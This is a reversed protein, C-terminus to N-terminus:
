KQYITVLTRREKGKRRWVTVEVVQRDNLFVIGEMADLLSGLLNDLDNRCSTVVEMGVDGEIPPAGWQRKIEWRAGEEWKRYDESPISRGDPLTLRKNKKSPIRGELRIEAM